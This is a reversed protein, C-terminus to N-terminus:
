IHARNVGTPSNGYDQFGGMLFYDEYAKYLSPSVEWKAYLNTNQTFVTDLTVKDGSGDANRFWGVFGHGARLGASPLTQEVPFSELKGDLGVQRVFSAPAAPAGEYNYHFTVEILDQVTSEVASEATVGPAIVFTSFIMSLSLFISILRRLSYKM